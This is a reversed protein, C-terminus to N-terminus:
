ASAKRKRLTSTGTTTGNQEVSKREMLNIASRLHDPALHAYRMTMAITKHGALVQVARLDAGGMVLRSIFTHRNCHWTYDELGAKEIVAEWWPRPHQPCLLDEKTRSALTRIAELAVPHLPVNLGERNKMVEKPVHMFARDFDVWSKLFALQASLRLGTHLSLDFEAMREPCLETIADRLKKEENNEKEDRLWRIRANNEARQPVLRAPNIDIKGNRNGQRYILGLLAKYRNRTSDEIDQASLWADIEQPKITAAVRGGFAELLYQSRSHDNRADDKHADSYELADTVLEDFLVGRNRMNTPLKIGRRVDAKRENYLTRADSKRGVKERHERGDADTYRIWWIGSGPVKEFVGRVKVEKKAMIAGLLIATVTRTLAM